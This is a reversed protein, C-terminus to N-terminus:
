PQLNNLITAESVRRYCNKYEFGVEWQNTEASVESSGSSLCAGRKLDGLLFVNDNCDKIALYFPKNLLQSAEKLKAGTVGGLNVDLSSLWYQSPKEGTLEKKLIAKDTVTGIEAWQRGSELLVASVLCGADGQDIEVEDRVFCQSIFYVTCDLGLQIKTCGDGAISEDDEDCCEAMFVRGFADLVSQVLGAWGRVAEGMAIAAFLVLTAPSFTLARM